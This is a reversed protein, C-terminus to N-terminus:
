EGQDVGDAIGETGEDDKVVDDLGFDITFGKLEIEQKQPADAGTLKVISDLVSRADKLNNGAMCREYLYTYRAILKAKLDKMSGEFEEGFQELMSNWYRFFKREESRLTGATPVPYEGGLFKNKIERKSLGNLVDQYMKDVVEDKEAKIQKTLM